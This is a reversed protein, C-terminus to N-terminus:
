QMHDAGQPIQSARTELKCSVNLYKSCCHTYTNSQNSIDRTACVYTAMRASAEITEGECTRMLFDFLCSKVSQYVCKPFAFQNVLEGLPM